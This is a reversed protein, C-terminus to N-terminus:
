AAVTPCTEQHRTMHIGCTGCFREDRKRRAQGTSRAAREARSQGKGRDANKNGLGKGRRNASMRARAEDTHKMM